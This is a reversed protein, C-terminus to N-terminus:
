AKHTSAETKHTPAKAGVDLAQSGIRKLAQPVV